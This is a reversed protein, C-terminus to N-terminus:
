VKTISIAVFGDRGAQVVVDVRDGVKPDGIIQTQANVQVLFDPGLGAAPGIVWQTASISKVVGTLHMQIPPPSTISPIISIAIYNNASDLNALVDVMDGVKPSGVIKTQANVHVTIERGRSDTIIWADTGISKVTGHILTPPQPIPAFVLVSSAVLVGNVANAQVQVLDNASLDAIGRVTRSGGFSTNAVVRITRGLLMFTNGIRDVSQVPGSLTVQALTTVGITLAPLPANAAVDATKLLAVIFSGAKISAANLSTGHDDTITAQSSDVTVLGGALSILSGSVSNVFGAVTTGPIPFPPPNVARGRQAAASNIMLILLSLTILIRRLM